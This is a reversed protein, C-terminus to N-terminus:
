IGKAIQRAPSGPSPRIGVAPGEVFDPQPASLGNNFGVDKPFGTFAQNFAKKYGEKPYQKLMKSGMEFLTTTENCVGLVTDVYDEYV